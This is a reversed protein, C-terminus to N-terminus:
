AIINGDRDKVVTVTSIPLWDSETGLSVGLLNIVVDRTKYEFSETETVGAGGGGSSNDIRTIVRRLQIVNSM